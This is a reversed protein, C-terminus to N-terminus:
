TELLEVFFQHLAMLFYGFIASKQAMKSEDIMILASSYGFLTQYAEIFSCSILSVSIDLYKTMLKKNNVFKHSM